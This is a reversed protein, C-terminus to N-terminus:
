GPRHGFNGATAEARLAAAHLEAAARTEEPPMQNFVATGMVVSGTTVDDRQGRRMVGRLPPMFAPHQLHERLKAMLGPEAHVRALADAVVAVRVV